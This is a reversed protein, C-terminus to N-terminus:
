VLIILSPGVAPPGYVAVIVPGIVIELLKVNAPLRAWRSVPPKSMVLLPPFKLIPVLVNAVFNFHLPEVIATELAAWGEAETREFLGDSNRFQTLWNTPVTLRIVAEKMTMGKQLCVIKFQRQLDDPIGTIQMIM